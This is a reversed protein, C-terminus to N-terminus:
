LRWERWELTDFRKAIALSGRQRMFIHHILGTASKKQSSQLDSKSNFLLFVHLLKNVKLKPCQVDVNESVMSGFFM